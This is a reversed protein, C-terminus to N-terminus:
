TVVLHRLPSFPASHHHLRPQARGRKSESLQERKGESGREREKRNNVWVKRGRGARQTNFANTGQRDREGRKGRGGVRGPGENRWM